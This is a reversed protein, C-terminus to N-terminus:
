QTDRCRLEWPSYELIVSKCNWLENKKKMKLPFQEKIEKQSSITRKNGQICANCQKILAKKFLNPLWKICLRM